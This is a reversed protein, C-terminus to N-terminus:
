ATCLIALPSSNSAWRRSRASRSMWRTRISRCRAKTPLSRTIASCWRGRPPRAWCIPRVSSRAPSTKRSWAACIFQCWGAGCHDHTATPEPTPRPISRAMRRPSPPRSHSRKPNEPAAANQRIVQEYLRVHNQAVSAPAFHKIAFDRGRESWETMRQTDALAERIQEAAREPKLSLVLGLNHQYFLQALDLTDAISSPVGLYLCEAVSVPFGEWRSPQIYLSAKSLVEAKANGFIPDHFTVNTPLNQRLRNLWDLTKPDETGYLHVEVDSLLRAIEILIDIGKVLVDFRGLFVLRKKPTALGQWRHPDLLSFDVPNPMWRVIKRYDPLFSRVAKEEAPTVLAIAAAGMFRPRERLISYVTKKTRGRALVQPALGAHPTIVYPIRYSRLIRSLTAQRVIFVSHTHVIEPPAVDLLARIEKSYGLTTATVDLLKLGVPAAMEHADQTPSGDLLLSVDHGLRAQEIAMLWVTRSVGDVRYPNPAAGVHWIKM